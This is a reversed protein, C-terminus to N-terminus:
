HDYGVGDWFSCLDLSSELLLTEDLIIGMRNTPDYAPWMVTPPPNSLNPDGFKAFSTWYNIMNNSLAREQPTFSVNLSPTHVENGFVLPLESMHCANTECISPLGFKPWLWSASFVHTYRYVYTQHGNKYSAEAYRQTFCRFLYDTLVEGFLWRADHISANEYRKAVAVGDPYFVAEDVVNALFDPLWFNVGAYVFTEGDAANSGELVAVDPNVKGNLFAEEPEYPLVDGDITPAFEQVFGDMIHRWNALIFAWDSGSATRWGQEVMSTPIAQLCSEDCNTCNVVKCFASGYDLAEPLTHYLLGVNSEMIARQFLGSSGPSILHLGV